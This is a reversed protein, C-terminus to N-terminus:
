KVAVGWPYNDTDITQAAALAGTAPTIAYESLSSPSNFNTVFLWNDDGRIAIAKPGSGTAVTAPNLATLAGSVAAIKLPSITNSLTSLVYVYNGYPDVVLPGPGNPSGSLSFPSGAVPQLTGDPTLPCQTSQTVSGNCITYASVRDNKSGSVYVFRNCPDVAVGAPIADTPQPNTLSTILSLVGSTTNVTFAFVQNGLGDVAYLYQSTPPPLGATSCVSNQVGNIGIAPFVTPTAAVDVIDLGAQPLTMPSPSPIFPSGAVETVTGGSGISFVSVAGPVYQGATNTTARDAVFLFKGAADIVMKSPVVPVGLANSFSILSGAASTTGDSNVKLVLLGTASTSGCSSNANIIAYAYTGAPNIVLSSPVGNLVCVQSITDNPTNGIASASGSGLNFSFTEILGSGQSGVLILGDSSSNYTTGCAVLLGISVLVVVGLLWGLRKSM